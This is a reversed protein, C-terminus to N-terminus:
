AQRLQGCRGRRWPANTEGRSPMRGTSAANENHVSAASPQTCLPLRRRHHHPCKYTTRTAAQHSGAHRLRRSRTSCVTTQITHYNQFAFDHHWRGRRSGNALRHNHEHVRGCHHVEQRQGHSESSSADVDDCACRPVYRWAWRRPSVHRVDRWVINARMRAHRAQSQRRLYGCM